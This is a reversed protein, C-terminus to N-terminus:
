KVCVGAFAGFDSGGHRLGVSDVVLVDVASLDAEPTLESFCLHELRERHLHGRIEKIREPTPEHPVLILHPFNEPTNERLLHYAPM